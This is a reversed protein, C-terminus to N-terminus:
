LLLHIPNLKFLILLLSPPPALFCSSLISQWNVSQEWGEKRDRPAAGFISMWNLMLDDLVRHECFYDDVVVVALTGVVLLIDAIGTNGVIDDVAVFNGYIACCGVIWRNGEVWFSM